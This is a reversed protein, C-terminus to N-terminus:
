HARGLTPDTQVIWTLKVEQKETLNEPNKWRAYRFNKIGAARASDPRAPADKAPRGRSRKADNHRAAKRADNWAARRVEDLAETVWKVVHFPDARKVANPCRKAM